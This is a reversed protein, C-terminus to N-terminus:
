EGRKWEQLIYPGTGNPKEILDGGGGTSELYDADNIAFASFAVKAPFAVDSACLTFKVTYQDVAEISKFEGGYDCNPAEAKMGAYPVETPVATPPPATPQPPTTPQPATTPAVAKTPEPTATAAPGCAALVVSAIVLLGVLSMLKHSRKM